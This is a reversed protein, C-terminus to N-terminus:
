ALKSSKKSVPARVPAGLPVPACCLKEWISKMGIHQAPLLNQRTELMGGRHLTLQFM